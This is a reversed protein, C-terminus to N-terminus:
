NSPDHEKIVLPKGKPDLVIHRSSGNFLREDFLGTWAPHEEDKLRCVQFVDDGLTYYIDILLKEGDFQLLFHSFDGQVTPGEELASDVLDKHPSQLAQELSGIREVAEEGQHFFVIERSGNKEGSGYALTGPDAQHMRKPEVTSLMGWLYYKM